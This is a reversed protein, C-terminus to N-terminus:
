AVEAGKLANLLMVPSTLAAQDFPLDRFLQFVPERGPLRIAGVGGADDFVVISKLVDDVQGLRVDLTLLADGTVEAEYEYYAVGGSSLLVRKLVLEGAAAPMALLAVAVAMSAAEIIPFKM